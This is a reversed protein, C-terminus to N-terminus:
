LPRALIHNGPGRQPERRPQGDSLTSTVEYLSGITVM